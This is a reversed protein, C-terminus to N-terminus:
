VCVNYRAIRLIRVTARYVKICKFGSHLANPLKKLKDRFSKSGYFHYMSRMGYGASLSVKAGTVEVLRKNVGRRLFASVVPVMIFPFRGVVSSKVVVAFKYTYPLM